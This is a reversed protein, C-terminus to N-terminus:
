QLGNLATQLKQKTAVEAPTLQSDQLPNVEELDKTFHYFKGSNDGTKYLKYATDQAYSIPNTTGHYYSVPEPFPDYYCYTWTRANENNGFLQPYFSVGDLGPPTSVNAMDLFTPAFDSFDVLNNNIGPTIHGPWYVFLPVHTGLETTRGKEGAIEKGKFVSHYNTQSGNDGAFVIITNKDLGDAKLKNILVGVKIDLYHTMSGIYTTDSFDGDVTLFSKDTPTPQFPNHVLMFSYYIFFPVNENQDIFKMAYDGTLDESYKNHTMSRSLEGAQDVLTPDRYLYGPPGNNENWVCYSDFGVAGLGGFADDLQWKGVVCTKYGNNQLVKAYSTYQPDYEGWGLRLYNRFNYLGSLLEVRSPSCLPTARCQSFVMSNAALNDLNTTNYSQGGDFTPMEYGVDDGLIFIINPPGSTRTSIKDEIVVNKKCSYVLSFLVIVLLLARKTNM